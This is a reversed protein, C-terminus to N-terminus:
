AKNSIRKSGTSRKAKKKPRAMALIDKLEALSVVIVGAKAMGERLEPPTIDPQPSVILVRVLSHTKMLKRGEGFMRGANDENPNFFAWIGTTGITWFAPAREPHKACPHATAIKPIIEAVCKCFAQLQERDFARKLDNEILKEAGSIDMQCYVKALATLIKSVSVGHAKSRKELESKVDPPLTVNTPLMNRKHQM